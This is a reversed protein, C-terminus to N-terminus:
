RCEWGLNRRLPSGDCNRKPKLRNALCCCCGDADAACYCRCSTAWPGNSRQRQAPRLLMASPVLSLDDFDLALRRRVLPPHNSSPGSTLLDHPSDHSPRQDAGTWRSAGDKASDDLLKNRRCTTCLEDATLRRRSNDDDSTKPTWDIENSRSSTM